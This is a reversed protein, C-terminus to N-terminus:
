FVPVGSLLWRGMVYSRGGRMFSTRFCGSFTFEVAPNEDEDIRWESLGANNSAYRLDIRQHEDKFDTVVSIGDKEFQYEMPITSFGFLDAAVERSYGFVSTAYFWAATKELQDYACQPSLGKLNSGPMSPNETLAWDAPNTPCEDAQVIPTIARETPILVLNDELRHTRSIVESVMQNHNYANVFLLVLLIVFLGLAVKVYGRLQNKGSATTFILLNKMLMDKM